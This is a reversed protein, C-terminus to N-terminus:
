EEYQPHEQLEMRKRQRYHELFRERKVSRAHMYYAIAAIILIIILIPAILLLMTLDTSSEIRKGPTLEFASSRPSEGFSNRCSLSVTYEKGNELGEIRYSRVTPALTKYVQTWNEGLYIHYQWIDSGGDDAPPDWSIEIWGDGTTQNRITPPSPYTIPVAELLDSMESIGKENKAAVSIYYTVGNILDKIPLFRDSIDTAISGLDDRSTGIYVTYLLLRYGGDDKPAAWSVNISESSQMYSLSEPPGPRTRPTGNLVASKQGEGRLNIASVALHYKTGKRLGTFNFFDANVISDPYLNSLDSGIYVRYRPSPDGGLDSPESWSLNIYTGGVNISPNNPASPFGYPIISVNESLESEFLENEASVKFSYKRGYLIDDLRFSTGTISSAIRITSEGDMSYVNYTVNKSGGAYLPEMWDLVLSGNDQVVSLNFVGSIEGYPTLNYLWVIGSDGLIGNTQLSCNYTVGNRLSSFNYEFVTLPSVEQLPNGFRDYLTLTYTLFSGGDYLPRDWAFSLTGDGSSSQFNLPESPIGYTTLNLQLSLPGEGKPNVASIRFKHEVGNTINEFKHETGNLEFIETNAQSKVYVKYTVSTYGGLDIPRRWSVWIWRDGLDRSVFEPASPKSYPTGNVEVGLGKGVKNFAHIRYLYNKGKILGTDNFYTDLVTAFPPKGNNRYIYYGLVDENGDDIPPGWSLENWSDGPKISPNTPESPVDSSLDFKTITLDYGGNFTVDYTGATVPFDSNMTNFYTYGAITVGKSGNLSVVYGRDEDSGGLFTSYAIKRDPTIIMLFSDLANRAFDYAGITTPFKNSDTYGTLYVTGSAAVDMSMVSEEYDFKPDNGEKEDAGIYTSFVLKTLNEPLITLFGDMTGSLSKDLADITTNYTSSLVRGAIYVEGKLLEMSKIFSGNGMYSSVQIGSLDGNMVTIYGNYSGVSRGVVGPTVPFDNSLALGAIAIRGDTFVKVVSPKDPYQSGGLFTSHLTSKLDPAFRAIFGDEGGSMATSYAGTSTWFDPSTTFGAAVINGAGDDDIATVRESGIGGIYSSAGLSGDSTSFVSLIGDISGGRFTGNVVGLTTPFDSSDSAGSIFVNGSRDCAIGTLYESKAGGIYTMFILDDLDDNIGAILIDIDAVNDSQCAILVNGNQDRDMAPYQDWGSAGLFTSATLLPDIILDVNPDYRGLDFSVTDGAWEYTADIVTNEQTVVLPGEILGGIFHLFKEDVGIISGGYDISIDSPDGGPHVVFETKPSGNLFTIRFDIGDYVNPIMVSKYALAKEIWNSPDNGKYYNFFAPNTDSGTPPSSHSGVFSVRLDPISTDMHNVSYGSSRVVVTTSAVGVFEDSGPMDIFHSLTQPLPHDAISGDRFDQLSGEVPITFSLGPMIFAFLLFIPLARM